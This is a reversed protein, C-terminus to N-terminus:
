LLTTHPAAPHNTVNQSQPAFSMGRPPNPVRLGVLLLPRLALRWVGLASRWHKGRGKEMANEDELDSSRRILWLMRFLIGPVMLSIVESCTSESTIMSVAIPGTAATM